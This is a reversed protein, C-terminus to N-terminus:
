TCTYAIWFFNWKSDEFITWILRTNFNSFGVSKKKYKRLLDSFCLSASRALFLCSVRSSSRSAISGTTSSGLSLRGLPLPFLFLWLRHFTVWQFILGTFILTTKLPKTKSISYHQEQCNMKYMKKNLVRVVNYAFIWEDGVYIKNNNM